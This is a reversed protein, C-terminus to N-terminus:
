NIIYIISTKSELNTLSSVQSVKLYGTISHSHLMYYIMISSVVSLFSRVIIILSLSSITPSSSIISSSIIMSIKISLSAKSYISIPPNTLFSLLPLPLPTCNAFIKKKLLSADTSSSILLLVTLLLLLYLSLPLTFSFLYKM